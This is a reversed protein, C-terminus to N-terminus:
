CAAVMCSAPATLWAPHQNTRCCMICYVLLISGCEAQTTLTMGIMRMMVTKSRRKRRRRLQLLPSQRQPRRPSRQPSPSAPQKRLRQGRQAAV